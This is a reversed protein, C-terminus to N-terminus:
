EASEDVGLEALLKADEDAAPVDPMTFTAQVPVADGDVTTNKVENLWKRFDDPNPNEFIKSLVIGVESLIRGKALTFLTFKEEMQRAFIDASKMDTPIENALIADVVSKSARSFLTDGMNKIADKAMVKTKSSPGDGSGASPYDEARFKDATKKFESGEVLGYPNFKDGDAKRAKRLAAVRVQSSVTTFFYPQEDEITLSGDSRMESLMVQKQTWPGLDCAWIYYCDLTGRFATHIALDKTEGDPMQRIDAIKKTNKTLKAIQEWMMPVMQRYTLGMLRKRFVDKVVESRLFEKSDQDNILMMEQDRTLGSYIDFRLNDLISKKMEAPVSPDALIILIARIRRNGEVIGYDPVYDTPWKGKIPNRWNLVPPRIVRGVALIARVMSPLDYTGRKPKVGFVEVGEDHRINNESVIKITTPDVFKTDKKGLGTFDLEMTNAEFPLNAISTAAM